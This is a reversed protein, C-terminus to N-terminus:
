TDRCQLWKEIKALLERMSEFTVMQKATPINMWRIKHIEEEQPEFKLTKQIFIPYYYNTKDVVGKDKMFRYSHTFVVSGQLISPDVSLGTEEELERVAAEEDSEGEEKHGKPFSWHLPEREKSCHQVFLIECSDGVQAIPIIGYSHEITTM